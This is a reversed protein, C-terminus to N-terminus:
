AAPHAPASTSTIRVTGDVLEVPVARLPRGTGPGGVCKGSDMAFSAGHGACLLYKGELVIVRGDPRELPFGAHPCWNEFATIREGQRTILLSFLADGEAFDRVIAGPDPIDTLQAVVTGPAPRAPNM